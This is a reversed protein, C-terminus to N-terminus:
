VLFQFFELYLIKTLFDSIRSFSWYHSFRGRPCNQTYNTRLPWNLVTSTANKFCLFGCHNFHQRNPCVVPTSKRM